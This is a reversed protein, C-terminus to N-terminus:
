PIGGLAELTSKYGLDYLEKAHSVSLIDYKDIGKPQIFLTACEEIKKMNVNVSMYLTRSAVQLMNKLKDTPNIPSINSVILQECEEKIPEIPINDMLGGDVYLNGKLKVPSFLIPISSSALVTEGISGSNVYEVCGKNLNSISIYFPIPLDEINQEHINKEIVEKLGDLKFLGDVPLHLKTYKYLKGKNFIHLIEEPSKGSAIFAGVVSGVSAGAIVDPRVGKEYLAAVVGLHAFGRTGGGSLVLGTKYKKAM